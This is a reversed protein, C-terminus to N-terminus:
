NGGIEKYKFPFGNLLNEEIDVRLGEKYRGKVDLDSTGNELYDNINIYGFHNFIEKDTGEIIVIKKM